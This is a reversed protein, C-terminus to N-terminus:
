LFKVGLDHLGDNYIALNIALPTLSEVEAANVLPGAYLPELGDIGQTVSRVIDVADTDDGVLIVHMDLEADLNALRGAPLNHFAGVVPVNEPTAEAALETVSGQPPRHYRAGNEDRKIGVAPSVLITEDDLKDAITEITDGVHYPPVAVVVLDGRDAVMENAFGKITRDRGRSSLETEYEEAKSRARKPDRSGILIEHDTDNALRLALGAGIDGTGGCIAIRM